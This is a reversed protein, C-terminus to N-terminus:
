VVVEGNEDMWKQFKEGLRKADEQTFSEWRRGCIYALKVELDLVRETLVGMHREAEDAENELDTIANRLEDM